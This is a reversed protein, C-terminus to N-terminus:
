LLCLFRHTRDSSIGEESLENVLKELHRMSNRDVTVEAVLDKVKEKYRLLGDFGSESKRARDGRVNEEFIIPDVSATLGSVEVRELFEDIMLSDTNNTIITYNINMSNCYNIIYALDNRLFPEGGYFLHFMDPNHKQLRSLSEIVFSTNMENKLYHSIRPYENPMNDYNRIIACYSCRLNCRRTLLWSCIQIMREEVVMLENEKM